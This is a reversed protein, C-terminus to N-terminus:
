LLVNISADRRLLQGVDSSQETKGKMACACTSNTEEQKWLLCIIRFTKNNNLM